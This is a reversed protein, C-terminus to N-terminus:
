ESIRYDKLFEKLDDPTDAYFSLTSLTNVDPNISVNDRHYEFYENKKNKEIMDKLIIKLFELQYKGRLFKEDNFMNIYKELESDCVDYAEKYQKKLYFSTINNKIYLKNIEIEFIKKIKFNQYSINVIGSERMKLKQYYIWANLKKIEDNFAKKTQIFDQLSKKYDNDVDNIGFENHLIRKFAGNTVYFNEISYCSTIYLEKKPEIEDFDKDIFFMKTVNNYKKKLMEYLKLVQKKGNCSYSIINEELINTYKEIRIAYYKRDEGEFFCFLKKNFLDRNKIFKSYISEASDRKRRMEEVNM